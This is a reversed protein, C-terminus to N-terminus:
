KEEKKWSSKFLDCVKIGETNMNLTNCVKQIRAGFGAKYRYSSMSKCIDCHRSPNGQRWNVRKRKKHVSEKIM